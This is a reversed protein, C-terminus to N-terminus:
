LKHSRAVAQSTVALGEEPVVLGKLFLWRGAEFNQVTPLFVFFVHFQSDLEISDERSIECM